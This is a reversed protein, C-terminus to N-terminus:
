TALDAIAPLAINLAVLVLGTCAIITLWELWDLTNYQRQRAAHDHVPRRRARRRVLANFFAVALAALMPGIGLAIAGIADERHGVWAIALLSVLVLTGAVTLLVLLIAVESTLPTPEVAAAPSQPRRGGKIDPQRAGATGSSALEGGM